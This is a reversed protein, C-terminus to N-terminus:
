VIRSNKRINKWQLNVLHNFLWVHYGMSDNEKSIYYHIFNVVFITFFIVSGLRIIKDKNFLKQGKNLYSPVVFYGSILFFFDIFFTQDLSSVNDFNDKYKPYMEQTYILVYHIM